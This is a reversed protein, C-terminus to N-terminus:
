RGSLWNRLGRTRMAIGVWTIYYLTILGDRVVRVRSKGFNRDKVTIPFYFVRHGDAIIAMSLSTTFSFTDCLIPSYGLALDRRFIRMGSNLDILYHGAIISAIFNLIKRGLWRHPKEALGYRMGVIMDFDPAIQLVKYLRLVDEITHQGDGDLTMVYKRTAQKVGQKIAYGYGMQPRYAVHKFTLDVFDGDNVVIVEAGKATLETYTRELFEPQEKYVPIVISIDNM